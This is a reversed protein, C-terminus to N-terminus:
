RSINLAKGSKSALEHAQRFKVANKAEERSITIPGGNSTGVSNGTAGSGVSSHGEFVGMFDENDYFDTRVLEEVSMSNKPSQKSYRVGGLSFDKVAVSYQGNEEIVELQNVVHPLLPKIKGKYKAIAKTAENEKLTNFLVDQARKARSTEENLRRNYDEVLRNELSKWDEAEKLRKVQAEDRERRLLDLENKEDASMIEHKRKNMEREKAIINKLSSIDEVGDVDLRYSGDTNQVYLGKLSDDVESIEKIYARVAM